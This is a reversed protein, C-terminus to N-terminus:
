WRWNRHIELPEAKWNQWKTTIYTIADRTAKIQTSKRAHSIASKFVESLLVVIDKGSTLEVWVEQETRTVYMRNYRYVKPEITTGKPFGKIIESIPVYLLFTIADRNSMGHGKEQLTYGRLCCMRIWASLSLGADEAAQKFLELEDPRVRANMYTGKVLEPHKFNSM